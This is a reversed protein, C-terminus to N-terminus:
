FDTVFSSNFHNLKIHYDNFYTLCETCPQVSSKIKKLTSRIERNKNKLM